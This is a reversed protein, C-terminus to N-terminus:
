HPDSLVMSIEGCRNSNLLFTAFLDCEISLVMGDEISLELPKKQRPVKRRSGHKAYVKKSVAAVEPQAKWAHVRERAAKYAQQHDVIPEPYDRGIKVGFLNQEMSSLKHPEAIQKPPVRALEPVWQKIFSGEPDQDLVQKIPSYIRVTNIGTTGSQMQFQSYHIGPEFDLFHKALFVAPRRWHLWLHYASFSALMARMRFNIWGTAHLSRMCADILPYGTEGKQWALVM